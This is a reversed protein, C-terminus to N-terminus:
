GRTHPESDARGLFTGLFSLVCCVVWFYLIVVAANLTPSSIALGAGASVDRWNATDFHLLALQAFSIAAVYASSFLLASVPRSRGGINRTLLGGLIPGLPLTFAPLITALTWPGVNLWATHLHLLPFLVAQSRVLHLLDPSAPRMHLWAGALLGSFSFLFAVAVGLLCGLLLTFGNPRQATSADAAFWPSAPPPVPPADPLRAVTHIGAVPERSQSSLETRPADTPDIFIFEFVDLRIRDQSRLSAKEIRQGNLYTGNTSHLDNIEFRGNEDRRIEAHKASVTSEKMVLDCGPSRGIVFVDRRIPFHVERYPDGTGALHPQDPGTSDM